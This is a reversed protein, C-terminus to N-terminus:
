FHRRRQMRLATDVDLVTTVLGSSYTRESNGVEAQGLVM